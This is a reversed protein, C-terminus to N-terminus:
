VTRLHGTRCPADNLATLGNPGQSLPSEPGVILSNSSFLRITRGSLGDRAAQDTGSVGSLAM